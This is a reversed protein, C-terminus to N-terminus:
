LIINIESSNKINLSNKILWNNIFDFTFTISKNAPIIKYINERLDNKPLLLNISEIPLNHKNSFENLDLVEENELNGIFIFYNDGNWYFICGFELVFYNYVKFKLIFDYEINNIFDEIINLGKEELEIKKEFVNYSYLGPLKVIYKSNEQKPKYIMNDPFKDLIYGPFLPYKNIFPIKLKRNLINKSLDSQYYLDVNITSYDGSSIINKETQRIGFDIM